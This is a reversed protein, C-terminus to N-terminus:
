FATIFKDHAKLLREGLDNVQATTLHSCVPDIRLAQLAKTKNKEFCADVVTNFVHAYPEVLGLIQPPLKGYAIPSFGLPDIRVPTEVVTGRPLNEVQGINATNGVDIFVKGQSHAAIIDAATERSRQNYGGSLDGTKIINKLRVNRKNFGDRREKITTRHLKYKAMRKVDTIGWPV